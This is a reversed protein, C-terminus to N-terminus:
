EHAPRLGRLRLAGHSVSRRNIAGHDDARAGIPGLAHAGQDVWVTARIAPITGDRRVAVTVQVKQEHAHACALLNERRDEIWKIPQHLRRALFAVVVAEPYGSGKSGRTRHLAQGADPASRRHRWLAADVRKEPASTEDFGDNM